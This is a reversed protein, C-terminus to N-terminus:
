RTSEQQRDPLYLKGSQGCGTLVTGLGVMLFFTATMRLANRARLIERLVGSSGEDCFVNRLIVCVGQNAKSM